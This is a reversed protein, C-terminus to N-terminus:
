GGQVIKKVGKEFKSRPIMISRGCKTCKIRFDMGIRIIEWQNNGCPHPKRMEVIQGVQYDAMINVHSGGKRHFIFSFCPSPVATRASIKSNYEKETM